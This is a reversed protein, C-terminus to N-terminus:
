AKYDTLRYPAPLGIIGSVYQCFIATFAIAQVFQFLASSEPLINTM